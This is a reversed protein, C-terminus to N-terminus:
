AVGAREGKLITTHKELESKQGMLEPLSEVASKLMGVSVRRGCSGSTQGEGVGAGSTMGRVAEVKKM